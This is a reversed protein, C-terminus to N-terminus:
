GVRGLLGSSGAPGERPGVLLLARTPRCPTLYTLNAILMHNTERKGKNLSDNENRLRRRRRRQELNMIRYGLGTSKPAQIRGGESNGTSGNTETSAEQISPHNKGGKQDM